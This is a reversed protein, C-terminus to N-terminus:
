RAINLQKVKLHGDRGKRKLRQELQGVFEVTRLEPAIRELSQHKGCREGYSVFLGTEACQLGQRRESLHMTNPRRKRSPPSPTQFGHTTRMSTRFWTRPRSPWNESDVPTSLSCIGHGPRMQRAVSAPWGPPPLFRGSAAPGIHTSPRFYPTTDPARSASNIAASDVSAEKAFILLPRLWRQTSVIRCM